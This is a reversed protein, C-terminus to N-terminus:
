QCPLVQIGAHTIVDMIFCHERFDDSMYSMESTRHSIEYIEIPYIFGM